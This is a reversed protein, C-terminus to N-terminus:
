GREWAGPFSRWVVVYIYVCYMCEDEGGGQGGGGGGGVVVWWGGHRPVPL